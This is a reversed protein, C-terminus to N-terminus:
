READAEKSSAQEDNGNFSGNNIGDDGGNGWGNNGKGRPPCKIGGGKGAASATDISLGDSSIQVPSAVLGLALLATAGSLFIGKKM